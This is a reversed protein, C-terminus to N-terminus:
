TYGNEQTRSVLDDLIEIIDPSQFFHDELESVMDFYTNFDIKGAMARSILIDKHDNFSLDPNIQM